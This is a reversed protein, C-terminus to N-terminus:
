FSGGALSHLARARHVRQGATATGRQGATGAGRQGATGTGSGTVCRCKIRVKQETILHQIIVDTMNERYAYRDQYLGHVTSFILQYMTITGDNSGVAVYNQKPRAATCWIWGDREGVTVLRVGEKTHLSVKKDSGGMLLYEGQTFYALACPDYDVPRDKGVQNGSMQYFSLTRDWCAVALVSTEDRNPNWCISWVPANTPRRILVQENGQKDRITITGNFLGLALYQGDNTWAATVVRDKVKHKAVSKKEPSWLGFDATTASALQQTVPNYVLKQIPDNHQYKLIGEAKATWIIITNDAGGSAFRKGDRSYSVTYVTDKHGKLSHLLDGDMADYVLVRNGVAAVIQAGDPRFALDNVVSEIGDRDPLRDSWTVVSRM